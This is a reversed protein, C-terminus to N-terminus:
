LVNNLSSLKARGKGVQGAEKRKAGCPNKKGGFPPPTPHLHPSIKVGAGCPPTFILKSM